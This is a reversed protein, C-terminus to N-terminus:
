TRVISLKLRSGQLKQRRDRAKSTNFQSVRSTSDNRRNFVLGSLLPRKRHILIESLTELNNICFSRGVAEVYKRLMCLVCLVMRAGM